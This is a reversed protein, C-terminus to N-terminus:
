GVGRAVAAGSYDNNTPTRFIRIPAPAAPGARLYTDYLRVAVAGFVMAAVIIAVVTLVDPARRKRAGGQDPGSM